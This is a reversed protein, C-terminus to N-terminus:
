PLKPNDTTMLLAGRTGDSVPNLYYWKGDLTIWGDKMYGDPGFYYWEYKKGYFLYAWQASPWTGDAYRYWWGKEDQIWRGETLPEDDEGTEDSEYVPPQPDPDPTVPTDPEEQKEYLFRIEFESFDSAHLRVFKGNEDAEVKVRYTEDGNQSHHIVDAYSATVRDPIGIIFEIKRGSLQSNEVPRVAEEAGARSIVMYPKIDLVMKEPAFSLTENEKLYTLEVGLLDIQLYTSLQEGPAVDPVSQLAASLDPVKQTSAKDEVAQVTDELVEQKLLEAEEPPISVHEPLVPAPVAEPDLRNEIKGTQDEVQYLSLASHIQALLDEYGNYQTIAATKGYRLTLNVEDWLSNIDHQDVQDGFEYDINLVSTDPFQSGMQSGILRVGEAYVCTPAEIAGYVTINVNGIEPYTGFNTDAFYIDGGCLVPVDLASSNGIQCNEVYINVDKTEAFCQNEYCGGGFVGNVKSDKLFINTKGVKVQDQRNDGVQYSGGFIEGGGRRDSDISTREVNINTADCNLKINSVKNNGVHGGYISFTYDLNGILLESDTFNLHTIGVTIESNSANDWTFSGGSIMCLEVSSDVIDLYTDGISSIAGAANVVNGCYINSIELGSCGEILIRTSGSISVDAGNQDAMSGGVIVGNMATPVDLFIGGRITLDTEPVQKNKGGGYLSNVKGHEYILPVGNAFLVSGTQDKGIQYDAEGEGTIVVQRIGKDDPIFVEKEDLTNGTLCVTVIGGSRSVEEETLEEFAEAVTKDEGARIVGTEGSLAREESYVLVVPSFHPVGASIGAETNEAELREAEELNDNLHFIDAKIEEEELEQVVPTFTINVDESPEVEEDGSLITVDFALIKTIRQEPREKQLIEEVAERIRLNDEEEELLSVRIQADEPLVGPAATVTIIYGAEEATLVTEEATKMAPVEQKLDADKIKPQDPEAPAPPLTGQVDKGGDPAELPPNETSPEEMSPDEATPDEASSGEETPDQEAPDLTSPDERTPDQASPDEVAPNEASPDDEAPNEAAPDDAAPKGAAPDDVVPNGSTSNDFVNDEAPLTEEQNAESEGSSNEQDAKDEGSEAGGDAPKEQNSNEIESGDGGSEEKKSEDIVGKDTHAADEAGPKKESGDPLNGNTVSDQEAEKSEEMGYAAIGYYPMGQMGATTLSLCLALVAASAKKVRAKVQKKMQKM